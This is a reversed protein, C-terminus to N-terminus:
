WQCTSVCDIYDEKQSWDLMNILTTSHMLNPSTTSSFWPGLPTIASTRHLIIATFARVAVTYYNDALYKSKCWGRIKNHLSPITHLDEQSFQCPTPLIDRDLSQLLVNYQLIIIDLGRHNLLPQQSKAALVGKKSM